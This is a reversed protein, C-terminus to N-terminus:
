YKKWRLWQDRLMKGKAFKQEFGDFDGNRIMEEYEDLHQRLENLATLVAPTNQEVIERWMVPSSSAVRSSDRFGTACGSFRVIREDEPVDLVSLTTASALIHPVHSTGAVLEDHERSDLRTTRTGIDQWLKEVKLIDAEEAGMPPVIFVDANSYLGKFANDLGSKETGAMPHSGIFHIGPIEQAAQEIVGKVSGIDTLVAGPKMLTAYKRIYEVIVPIPLCLVIFDGSSFAEEPTEFVADVIGKEMAKNRTDPNRAWGARHYKGELEMCFSAGLLGLGLVSVVPKTGM